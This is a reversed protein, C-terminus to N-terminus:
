AAISVAECWGCPKRPAYGNKVHILHRQRDQIEAKREPSLRSYYARKVALVRDRTDKRMKMRANVDLTTPLKIHRRALLYVFVNRGHDEHYDTLRRAHGESTIAKWTPQRSWSMKLFLQYAMQREQASTADTSLDHSPTLTVVVATM